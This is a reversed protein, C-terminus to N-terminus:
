VLDQAVRNEKSEKSRRYNAHVGIWSLWITGDDQRSLCFGVIERDLKAVLVSDADEAICAKLEATGYKALASNKADSNYYPLEAVIARFLYSLQEAEAPVM